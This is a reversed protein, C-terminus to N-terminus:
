DLHGGAIGPRNLAVGFVPSICLVIAAWLGARETYLLSTLRYILWTSVSFLLIFPLRLALPAISGFLHRSAWAM